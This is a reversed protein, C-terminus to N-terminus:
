IPTTYNGATRCHSLATLSISCSVCYRAKVEALLGFLGMRLARDDSEQQAGVISLAQNSAGATSLSSRGVAHDSAEGTGTLAGDSGGGGGGGGASLDGQKGVWATYLDGQKRYDLDEFDAPFDKDKRFCAM